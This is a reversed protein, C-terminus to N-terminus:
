DPSLLVQPRSPQGPADRACPPRMFTAPHENEAYYLRIPMRGFNQVQSTWRDVDAVAPPWALALCSPDRRVDLLGARQWPFPDLCYDSGYLCAYSGGPPGQTYTPMFYGSHSVVGAFMIGQPNQQRAAFSLADMGGSSFGYGYIRDEDVAFDRKIRRIVRRTHLQFKENGYSAYGEGCGAAAGDHMVVFWDKYGGTARNVFDYDDWSCPHEIYRGQSGHFLVVLPTPTQPIPTPGSITYTEPSGNIDITYTGYPVQVPQPTVQGQLALLLAALM